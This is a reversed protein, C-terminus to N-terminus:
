PSRASLTTFSLDFHVFLFSAYFCPMTKLYMFPLLPHIDAFYMPTAFYSFSDTVQSDVSSCAPHLIHLLSSRSLPYTDCPIRAGGDSSHTPTRCTAPRPSPALLGPRLSSIHGKFTTLYCYVLALQPASATSPSPSKSFFLPLLHPLLTSATSTMHTSSSSAGIWVIHLLFSTHSIDIGLPYSPDTLTYSVGRIIARLTLHLGTTRPLFHSSLNHLQRPAHGPPPHTHFTLQIVTCSSRARRTMYHAYPTLFYSTLAVTNDALYRSCQESIRSASWTSRSPLHMGTPTACPFGPCICPTPTIRLM